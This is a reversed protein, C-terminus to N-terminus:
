NRGDQSWDWAVFIKDPEVLTVLSQESWKISTVIVNKKNRQFLIRSGDPSGSNFRPMVLATSVSQQFIAAPISRGSKTVVVRSGFYIRDEETLRGVHTVISFRDNTVDHWTKGDRNVPVSITRPEGLFGMM